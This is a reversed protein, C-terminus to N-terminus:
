SMNWHSLGPEIMGLQTTHVLLKDSDRMCTHDFCVYVLARSSCAYCPINLAGTVPDCIRIGYEHKLESTLELMSDLVVDLEIDINRAENKSVDDTKGELIALENALEEAKSYKSELLQSFLVLLPYMKLVDSMYYIKQPLLDNHTNDM